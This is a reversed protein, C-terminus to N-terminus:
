SRRNAIIDIFVCKLSEAKVNDETVLSYALIKERFVAIIYRLRIWSAPHFTGDRTWGHSDLCSVAHDLTAGGTMLMEDSLDLPLKSDSYQHSINPPRGLFTAISKDFKYTAAYIKRRSELLFFPIKTVDKPERHLGM